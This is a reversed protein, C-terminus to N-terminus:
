KEFLLILSFTVKKVFNFTDNLESLHLGFSTLVISGVFEFNLLKVIVRSIRVFIM